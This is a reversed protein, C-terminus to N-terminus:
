SCAITILEQPKTILYDAGANKLEEQTRFGWLAGIKTIGANTATQMDVATDGVYLIEPPPQKLFRKVASACLNKAFTAVKREKRIPCPSTKAGMATLNLCNLIDYVIQPHPKIPIDKRNGFVAAWQITPFYHQMLEPLLEHPKNTAVALLIGKDQLNELTEIIGDYPATKDSKHIEYYEMFESLIKIYVTESINEPLARKMLMAVGNGVFYKYAETTHTPFGNKKLIYNACDALDDLTNLLTGDLDFIILKVM